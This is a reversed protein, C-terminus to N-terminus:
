TEGTQGQGSRIISDRLTKKWQSITHERRCWYTLLYTLLFIENLLKKVM